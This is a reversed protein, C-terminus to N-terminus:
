ESGGEVPGKQRDYSEEVKRSTSTLISSSRETFTITALGIPVAVITIYASLSSLLNDTAMILSRTQWLGNDPERHALYGM